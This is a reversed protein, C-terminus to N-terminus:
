SLPPARSHTHQAPSAPPRESQLLITPGAMGAVWTPPLPRPLTSTGHFAALTAFPCEGNYIGATSGQHIHGPTSGEAALSLAALVMLIIYGAARLRRGRTQLDFTMM